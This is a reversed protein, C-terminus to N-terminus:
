TVQALQQYLQLSLRLDLTTSIQVKFKYGGNVNVRFNM